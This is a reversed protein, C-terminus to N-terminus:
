LRFAKKFGRSISNTVKKTTSVVTNTTSTAVKAVVKSEEVTVKAVTKSGDEAVKAVTKSGDEAVKAVTKSGDVAVKAVVKSEEVTVKAVTKSEDEAVKAVVKGDKVLTNTDVAVGVDVELGVLAAVDGGVKVVAVGNHFTAEASGGAEFHEGVSVGGGVTAAGYRLSETVEGEVGAANGVSAEAGMSVGQKGADLHAEVGTGTKAYATATGSFGVGEQELTASVTASGEAVETYEVGASLGTKNVEAHADASVVIGVSAGITAGQGQEENGVGTSGSIGISEDM